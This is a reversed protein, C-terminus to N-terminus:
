LQEYLERIVRESITFHYPKGIVTSWIVTFRQKITTSAPYIMIIQQKEM